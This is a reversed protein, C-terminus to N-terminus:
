LLLLATKVRISPKYLCTYKLHRTGTGATIPCQLVVYLSLAKCGHIGVHADKVRSCASLVTHIIKDVPALYQYFTFNFM